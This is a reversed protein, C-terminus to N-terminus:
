CFKFKTLSNLNFESTHFKIFIQGTQARNNSASSRVHQLWCDSKATAKRFRWVFCALIVIEVIYVDKRLQQDSVEDLFGGTRLSGAPEIGNEFCVAM